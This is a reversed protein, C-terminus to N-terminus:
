PKSVLNSDGLVAQRAAWEQVSSELMSKLQMKVKKRKVNLKKSNFETLGTMVHQNNYFRVINQLPHHVNGEIVWYGKESVWAPLSRDNTQSYSAFSILMCIGAIAYQGMKKKM